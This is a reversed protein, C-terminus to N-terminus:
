AYVQGDIINNYKLHAKVKMIKCWFTGAVTHIYWLIVSALQSLM